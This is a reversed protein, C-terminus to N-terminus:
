NNRKKSEEYRLYMDCATLFEDHWYWYLHLFYYGICPLFCLLFYAEFNAPANMLALLASVLMIWIVLVALLVLLRVFLKKERLANLPLGSLFSFDIEKLFIRGLFIYRKSLRAFALNIALVIICLILMAVMLNATFYGNGLSFDASEKLPSVSLVNVVTTLTIFISVYQYMSKFRVKGPASSLVQKVYAPRLMRLVIFALLPAGAFLCVTGWAASPLMLCIKVLLWYIAMLLLSVITPRTFFTQAKPCPKDAFYDVDVRGIVCSYAWYPKFEYILNFLTVGLIVAIIGSDGPTISFNNNKWFFGLVICMVLYFFPLVKRDQFRIFKFYDPIM